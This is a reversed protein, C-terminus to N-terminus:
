NWYHLRCGGRPSSMNRDKICGPGEANGKTRHAAWMRTIFEEEGSTFEGSAVLSGYSINDRLLVAETRLSSEKSGLYM